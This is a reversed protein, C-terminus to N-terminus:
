QQSIKEIIKHYSTGSKYLWEMSLWWIMCISIKKYLLNIHLFDIFMNIIQIVTDPDQNVIFDSVSKMVINFTVSLHFVIM